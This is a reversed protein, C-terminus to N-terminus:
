VFPYKILIGNALHQIRQHGVPQFNVVAAFDSLADNEGLIVRVRLFDQLNEVAFIRM